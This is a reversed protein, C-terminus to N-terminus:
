VRLGYGRALRRGICLKFFRARTQPQATGACRVKTRALDAHLRNAEETKLAKEREQEAAAERAAEVQVTLASQHGPLYRRAWGPITRTSRFTLPPPGVPDLSICTISPFM